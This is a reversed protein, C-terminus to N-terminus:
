ITGAKCLSVVHYHIVPQLPPLTDSPFLLEVLRGAVPRSQLCSQGSAFVPQKLVYEQDLSLM